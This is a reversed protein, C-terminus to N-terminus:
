LEKITKLIEQLAQCGLTHKCDSGDCAACRFREKIKKWKELIEEKMEQRIANKIEEKEKSM